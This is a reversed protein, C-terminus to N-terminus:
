CLREVAPYQIHELSDDQILTYTKLFYLHVSVTDINRIMKFKQM